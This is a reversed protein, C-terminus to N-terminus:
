SATVRTAAATAAPQCPAETGLVRDWFGFTVGLNSGPAGHHHRHHRDRLRQGWQTRAPRHHANWHNIEYTSYGLSFTTGAARAAATPAVSTLVVAGVASGAAVALHGASRAALSTHLPNRHHARHVGGLPLTKLRGTGFPGHLVWRHTAYETTTWTFAGFAAGLAAGLFSRYSM